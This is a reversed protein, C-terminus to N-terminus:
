GGVESRELNRCGGILRMLGLNRKNLVEERLVVRFLKLDRM